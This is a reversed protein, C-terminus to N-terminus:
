TNDGYDTSVTTSVHGVAHTVHVVSFVLNLTAWYFIGNNAAIEENVLDQLM